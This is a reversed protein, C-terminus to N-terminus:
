GLRHGDEPEPLRGLNHCLAYEVRNRGRFGFSRRTTLKVKLNMGEVAGSSIEGKTEFWNFILEAHEELTRAVKKMPEIRWSSTYMWMRQFDEKMLYCKITKLNYALLEKLRLM